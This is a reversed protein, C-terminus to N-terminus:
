FNALTDTSEISQPWDFISSLNGSVDVPLKVRLLLNQAQVDEAWFAITDGNFGTTGFAM